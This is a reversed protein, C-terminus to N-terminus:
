PKPRPTMTSEREVWSIMKASSNTDARPRPGNGPMRARPQREIPNM